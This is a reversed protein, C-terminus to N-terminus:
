GPSTNSFIYSALFLSSSKIEYMMLALAVAVIIGAFIFLLNLGLTNRIVRWADSSKFFFEFNKFGVWKSGFIGQRVNYDKFALTIGYMARYDILILYLIAPLMLIYLYKNRIIEKIISGKKAEKKNKAVSLNM